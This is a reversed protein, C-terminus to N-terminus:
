TPLQMLRRPALASPDDIENREIVLSADPMDMNAVLRNDPSLLTRLWTDRSLLRLVLARTHSPCISDTNSRLSICGLTELMSKAVM